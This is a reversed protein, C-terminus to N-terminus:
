RCIGSGGEAGMIIVIIIAMIILSKINITVEISFVTGFSIIIVTDPPRGSRSGTFHAAEAAATNSHGAM